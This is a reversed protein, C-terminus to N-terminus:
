TRYLVHFSLRLSFSLRWILKKYECIFGLNLTNFATICNENIGEKKKFKGSTRYFFFKLFKKSSRGRCGKTCSTVQFILKRHLCPAFAFHESYDKCLINKNYCWWWCPPWGFTFLCRRGMLHSQRRQVGVWYKLIQPFVQLIQFDRGSM